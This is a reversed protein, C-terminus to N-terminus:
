RFFRKSLSIGLIELVFFSLKGQKGHIEHWDGNCFQFQNEPKFLSTIPGRGNDVTFQIAGDVM